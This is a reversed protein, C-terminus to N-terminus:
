VSTRSTNMLEFFSDQTGPMSAGVRAVNTVISHLNLHQVSAPTSTMALLLREIYTWAKNLTYTNLIATCAAFRSATTNDPLLLAAIM